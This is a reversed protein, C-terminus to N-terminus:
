SGCQLSRAVLEPLAVRLDLITMFPRARVLIEADCRSNCSCTCLGLIDMPWFSVASRDATLGLSLRHSLVM